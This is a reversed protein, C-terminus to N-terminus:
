PEAIAFCLDTLTAFSHLAHEFVIRFEAFFEFCFDCFGKFFLFLLEYVALSGNCGVVSYFYFCNSIILIHSFYKNDACTTYSCYSRVFHSLVCVYEAFDHYCAACLRLTISDYFCNAAWVDLSSLYVCVAYLLKAFEEATELGVQHHVQSQWILVESDHLSTQLASTRVEVRRVIFRLVFSVEFVRPLPSVLFSKFFCTKSCNQAAAKVWTHCADKSSVSCLMVEVLDLVQVDYVAISTIVVLSESCVEVRFDIDALNCLFTEIPFITFPYFSFWQFNVLWQSIWVNAWLFTVEEVVFFDFTQHLVVWSDLTCTEPHSEAFFIQSVESYNLIDTHIADHRDVIFAVHDLRQLEEFGYQRVWLVQAFVIVAFGADTTTDATQLIALLM